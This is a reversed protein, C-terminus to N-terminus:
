ILINKEPQIAKQLQLRARMYQSKSTGESIGTMEAIEKHTYGEIAYMNFVTRYGLPLKRILELLEKASMVDESFVNETLLNGPQEMIDEAVNNKNKRFQGIAANVMIKKIWGELSGSGNYTKIKKFVAIFGEQLIDQADERCGSYRLCVGMMKKAYREYLHKQANENNEICSQLLKADTM